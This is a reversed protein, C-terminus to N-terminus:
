LVVRKVGQPTGLYLVITGVRMLAKLRDLQEPALGAIVEKVRTLEQNLLAKDQNTRNCKCGGKGAPVNLRLSPFAALIDSRRALVSLVTDSVVFQGGNNTQARPPLVAPVKGPLIPRPLAPRRHPVL